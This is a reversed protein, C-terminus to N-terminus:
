IGGKISAGGPMGVFPLMTAGERTMGIDVSGDEGLTITMLTSRRQAAPALRLRSETGIHEATLILAPVPTSTGGRKPQCTGPETLLQGEVLQGTGGLVAHPFEAQMTMQCTFPLDPQIAQLLTADASGTLADIVMRGPRVLARGGLDTNSGKATWDTAFGLSVLSRLPAWKWALVSGGAVGVEGNWITGAVGTRWPRNTMVVSAPMTWVMAVVYAAIGLGAFRILRRRAGTEAIASLTPADAPRESAAAISGRRILPTM